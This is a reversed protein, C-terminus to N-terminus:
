FAFTQLIFLNSDSQSNHFGISFFRDSLKSFWARPAQKLGYISKQLKCLHHPLDLNIFSSPQQMYIAEQLDEHLFTNQM